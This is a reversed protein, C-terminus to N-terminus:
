SGNNSYLSQYGMATNIGGIINSSLSKSGVATNATGIKNRLLASDGVAVLNSVYDNYFLAKNGIAVNNNGNDNLKLANYGLATNENGTTNGALASSGLSTNNFGTTNNFLAAAGIGTNEFGTTNFNLAQAGIGTNADGTTNSFLGSTGVGTNGNGTTNSFLVSTGVATNAEGITNSFLSQYGNAVNGLGTLNSYLAEAGNATNLNGTTNSHLAGAGISSNYQGETNLSGAENGVFTNTTYKGFLELRGDGWLKMREVGGVRFSVPQGDTTGVFNVAPDTGANGNLGWGLSNGAVPEWEGTTSNFQLLDRDVPATGSVAKGQLKVVSPNPYTGSLDGGAPGSPPLTVPIVGAALDAATISGNAIEGSGVANAALQLNSFVGTVDGGAQSATTLDDAANTDGANSIVTGTINIGAGASYTTGNLDNGPTWASGNWKLVQGNGAGQQALALPNAATGNGSFTAGTTQVVQSGWNDGAGGGVDNAPAWTTGNWKLVQGTAAGQPAIKDGTVAGNAIKAANVANDALEPNGVIGTKLQLDSFPGTLDGGAQSATTLDDAANTDGTNEITNATIKIGNGATYVSGPPLNVSVWQSGDWQLIQGASVGATNVDSLDDLVGGGSTAPLTVTNGGSIGLQNGNLSLTQSENARAAYLAYPVSLLQTVGQLTNDINIKLFKPGGAWDIAAFAGSQVTGQGISLTFLGFQNTTKQHTEVYVVPGSVTGNLISIQISVQKGAVPQGQTNRAIAQYNIAQPTQAFLAFASILFFLFVSLQKM